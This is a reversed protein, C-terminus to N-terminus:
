NDFDCEAWKSSDQWELSVNPSANVRKFEGGFLSYSYDRYQSSVRSNAVQIRPGEAREVTGIYGDWTCVFTGVRKPLRSRREFEEKGNRTYTYRSFAKGLGTFRPDTVGRKEKTIELYRNYM